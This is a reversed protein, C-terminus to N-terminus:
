NLAEVRVDNLRVDQIGWKDIALHGDVLKLRGVPVLKGQGRGDAGIELEIWTVPYERTRSMHRMESFTIERDYFLTIRRGGDALSETHAVRLDRGLQGAELLRGVVPRQKQWRAIVAKQGSKRFLEVDTALEVPSTEDDLQLTLFATQSGPISELAIASAHIVERAEASDAAGCALSGILLLSTRILSRQSM